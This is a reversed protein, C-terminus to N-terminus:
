NYIMLQKINILIRNQDIITGIEQISFSQPITTTLEGFESVYLKTNVLESFDWNPDQAYGSTIITSVEGPLMEQSSIGITPFNWESNKSISIKNPEKYCVPAWKPITETAQATTMGVELKFSASRMLQSALPTETTLFKGRNLTDFKKIPKLEDDFLIFGSNINVGSINVTSGFPEIRLTAGSELNGVFIRVVEIWRSGSRVKMVTKTMDFWHQGDVPSVPPTITKIPTLSTTGFTRVGTQQNIDIYLFYNQISSFPGPWANTISSSEQYTYDSSGHAISVQLQIRDVYLNIGSPSVTLYQPINSIGHEGKIIGHRFNLQM